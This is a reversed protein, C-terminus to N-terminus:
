RGAADEDLLGIRGDAVMWTKDDQTRIAIPKAAWLSWFVHIETPVPDLLHSVFLAVADPENSAVLCSRSYARQGTVKSGSVEIRYAGGIPLTTRATVVPLFYVFWRDTRAPDAPLVVTNYQGPCRPFPTDIALRRAQVAGAEYASLAQPVKLVVVPGISRGADSITVRYLAAPTADVFTVDVGRPSNQTVWGRVRRDQRFAPLTLAEDTAVAAARDLRYIRAGAAEIERIAAPTAASRAPEDARVATFPALPLATLLAAVHLLCRLPKSRQTLSIVDHRPMHRRAPTALGGVPPM